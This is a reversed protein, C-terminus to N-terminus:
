PHSREPAAVRKDRSGECAANRRAVRAGIAIGQQKGESVLDHIALTSSGPGRSSVPEQHPAVRRFVGILVAPRPRYRSGMRGSKVVKGNSRRDDGHGCRASFSFSSRGVTQPM